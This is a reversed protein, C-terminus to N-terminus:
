CLWGAERSCTGYLDRDVALVDAESMRLIYGRQGLMGLLEGREEVPLAWHELHIAKPRHVRWDVQRLIQLECGEADVQLLDLRPMPWREALSRLTLGKVREVQLHRRLAAHLDPSVGRGGLANRDPFLSSLGEAWLPVVGDLVAQRQVRFMEHEGDRDTLAANVLVVGETGAYNAALAEFLDPLPELIIGKWRYHKVFAYIPDFRKGDMGGIQLFFLDPELDALAHLVGHVHFEYSRAYGPCVEALRRTCVFFRRFDEAQFSASQEARVRDAQSEARAGEHTTTAATQMPM